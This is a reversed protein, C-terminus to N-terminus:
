FSPIIDNSQECWVFNEAKLCLPHKRSDSEKVQVERGINEKALSKAAKIIGKWSNSEKINEGSVSVRFKYM